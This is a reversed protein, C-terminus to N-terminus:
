IGSGMHGTEGGWLHIYQFRKKREQPLSRSISVSFLWRPTRRAKLFLRLIVPIIERHLPEWRGFLGVNKPPCFVDRDGCLGLRLTHRGNEGGFFVEWVGREGFPKSKKPPLSFHLWLNPARSPFSPFPQRFVKESQMILLEDGELSKSCSSIPPLSFSLVVSSDRYIELTLVAKLQSSAAHPRGEGGGSWNSWM